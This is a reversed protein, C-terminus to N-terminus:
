TDRRSLEWGADALNRLLQNAVVAPVAIEPHEATLWDTLWEDVPKPKQGLEEWRIGSQALMGILYTRAYGTLAESDLSLASVYELAERVVRARKQGSHAEDPLVHLESGDPFLVIHVTGSPDPMSVMEFPGFLKRTREDIRQGSM